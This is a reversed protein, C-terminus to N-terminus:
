EKAMTFVNKVAVIVTAPTFIFLLADFVRGVVTITSLAQGGLASAIILVVGSMLFHSVEEGSVNFFGVILGVVILVIMLTNSLEGIIAFIVALLLGILFAWSGMKNIGQKKAM